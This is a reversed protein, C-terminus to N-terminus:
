DTPRVEFLLSALLRTLMWSLVFGLALGIVVLLLAQRLVTAVVDRRKAGLAMRIGVERTRQTVSCSILGYIGIAGLVLPLGGFLALLVFTFTREAVTSSVYDELAKVHYVPQTKDV